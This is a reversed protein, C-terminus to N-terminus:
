QPCNALQLVQLNGSNTVGVAWCTGNPSTLFLQTGPTSLYIAGNQVQLGTKPATTGIGVNVGNGLVLSNSRTVQANAGVATANTIGAAGNSSAGLFTNSNETTNSGGAGAGVFANNGGTTNNSGANAGVFANNSGMTNSSGAQDGVFANSDGAMNNVGANDGVFLNFSGTTNSFGAQTGVFSNNGGMTNNQGANRGFFSNSGGTTNFQGASAGFFSNDGGTTNSAGANQGVFSNNSATTNSLGAGSGFFSNFRGTTNSSGANLGFFSDSLGTTNAAGAGSGFFSNLRGTTNNQGATVGAFLNGTGGNSLVRNGGINYQVGADFINAKGTGDINFNAGTQQATQNRIFATSNTQAYNSADVGGLQAANTATTANTANAANTANTANDANTANLSRIAYPTSTIQQRPALPMYTSDAPKKVRIELFRDAGPFAAAGFDLPVTFIGNNVTVGTLTQTAGQQTGGTPADFLAFQFDYTGGTPQTAATADTFRGQYTFTTTQAQVTTTFAACCLAIMSYCIAKSLTKM